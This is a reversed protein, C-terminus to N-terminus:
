CQKERKSLMPGYGLWRAAPVGGGSPESLAVCRYPTGRRKMRM